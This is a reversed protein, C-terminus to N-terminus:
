LEPTSLISIILATTNNNVPNLSIISENGKNCFHNFLKKASMINRQSVMRKVSLKIAVPAVMENNLRTNKVKKFVPSNALFKIGKTNIRNENRIQYKDLFSM